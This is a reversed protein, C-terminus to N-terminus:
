AEKLRVKLASNFRQYTKRNWHRWEKHRSLVSYQINFAWFTSIYPWMYTHVYGSEDQKYVWVQILEATVYNKQTKSQNEIFRLFNLDPTLFFDANRM